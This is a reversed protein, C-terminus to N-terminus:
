LSSVALMKQFFVKETLVEEKDVSERLAQIATKDLFNLRMMKETYRIINLYNTRHYGIVHKRNIYNRMADLHSQLLDHERLEWYIKLLLTKAALNLLPDRYNAKQLLGLVEDHRGREYEIRALNYSYASERYIKELRNKYEGIFYRVWDLEGLRLGIAVVNHYTFRSLVGAEFIHGKALGEKYLDFAERFYRDGGANLRRVCYNIALIFLGHMEEASYRDSGELLLLKFQQFHAEESPHRLMRYCHLYVAIAPIAAFDPLEARAILEAEWSTSFDSQYVTQHATLLCILRLKQALYVVDATGSLERLRSVETPNQMYRMQHEEWKLKYQFDYYAANRLAQTELNKELIKQVRDFADPMNRKRYGAALHLQAGLRDATLEKVAIYQELLNHLYSMLLRLKQGELPASKGFLHRFVDEKRADSHRVLYEFLAILDQRQNFFPSLLFKRVDRLEVPSFSRILRILTSNEM